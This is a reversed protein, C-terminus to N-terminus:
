VIGAPTRVILLVPVYLVKSHYSSAALYASLHERCCEDNKQESELIHMKTNNTASRSCLRVDVDFAFQADHAIRECVSHYRVGSCATNDCGFFIGTDLRIVFQRKIAGFDTGLVLKLFFSGRFLIELQLPTLADNQPKIRGPKAHPRSTLSDVKKEQHDRHMGHKKTGETM